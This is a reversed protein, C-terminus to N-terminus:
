SGSGALTPDVQCLMSWITSPTAFTDPNIKEAPIELDFDDEVHVILEFMALSDVGLSALPADPNIEAGSVIFRAHSRFIKEFKDPLL